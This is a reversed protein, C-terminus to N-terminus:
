TASSYPIADNLELLVFDIYWHFFFFLLIVFSWFVVKGRPLFKFIDILLLICVAEGYYSLRMIFFSMYGALRFPIASLACLELPFNNKGNDIKYKYYVFMILCLPMLDVIWALGSTEAHAQEQIYLYKAPLFSVIVSVFFHIFFASVLLVIILSGYSLWKSEVKERAFLYIVLLILISEHLFLALLILLLARKKDNERLCYLALMGISISFFQRSQEM